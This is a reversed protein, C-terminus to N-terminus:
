WTPSCRRHPQDLVKFEGWGLEPAERYRRALLTM